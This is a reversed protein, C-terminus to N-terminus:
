RHAANFQALAGAGPGLEAEGLANLPADVTDLLEHLDAAEPEVFLLGTVVEGLAHRQQLYTLASIRDHPDYDVALKRLRLISGDHQVVTEVTGPAYDAVIEDRELIVDLRNVAENHARVYDFSKTSEPNNNFAVCPSVVDIFAAGRHEIAAKILPVLQNKDGSFSRGVFSAGLQL